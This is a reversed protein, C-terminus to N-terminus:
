GYQEVLRPCWQQAWAVAGHEFDRGGHQPLAVIHQVAVEFYIVGDDTDCSGAGHRAMILQRIEGLRLSAFGRSLTPRRGRETDTSRRHYVPVSEAGAIM